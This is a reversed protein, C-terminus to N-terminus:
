LRLTASTGNPASNTSGGTAAGASGKRACSGVTRRNFPPKPNPKWRYILSKAKDNEEVFVLHEGTSRRFANSGTLLHTWGTNEVGGVTPGPEFTGVETGDQIRNVWLRGRTKWGGTFVYDGAAADCGAERGAM